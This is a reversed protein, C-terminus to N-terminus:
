GEGSPTGQKGSILLVATRSCSASPPSAEDKKVGSTRASISRSFGHHLLGQKTQCRHSAASCRRVRDPLSPQAAEASNLRGPINSSREKGPRDIRSDDGAGHKHRANIRRRPAHSSALSRTPPKLPVQKRIWPHQTRPARRLGGRVAPRSPRDGSQSSARPARM